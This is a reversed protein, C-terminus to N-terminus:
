EEILGSYGHHELWEAPIDNFRSIKNWRWRGKNYQKLATHRTAAEDSLTAKPYKELLTNREEQPLRSMLEAILGEQRQSEELLNSTIGALTAHDGAVAKVTQMHKLLKGTVIVAQGVKAEMAENTKKFEAIIGQTEALSALAEELNGKFGAILKMQGGIWWYVGTATVVTGVGVGWMLPSGVSRTTGDLAYKIGLAGVGCILGTRFAEKGNVPQPLAAETKDMVAGARLVINALALTNTTSELGDDYYSTPAFYEHANAPTVLEGAQLTSELLAPILALFTIFLRKKM